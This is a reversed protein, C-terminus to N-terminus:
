PLLHRICQATLVRPSFFRQVASHKTARQGAKADVEVVVVQLMEAMLKAGSGVSGRFFLEANVVGGEQFM